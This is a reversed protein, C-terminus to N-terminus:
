MAHEGGLTLEREMVKGDREAYKIGKVRMEVEASCVIQASYNSHSLPSDQANYSPWYCEQGIGMLQALLVGEQTM